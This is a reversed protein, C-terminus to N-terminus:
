VSNGKAFAMSIKESYSQEEMHKIIGNCPVIGVLKGPVSTVSIPRCNGSDERSVKKFIQTM